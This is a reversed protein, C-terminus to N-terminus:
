GCDKEIRSIKKIYSKLETNDFLVIKDFNDKINNLKKLNINAVRLIARKIVKIKKKKSTSSDLYNFYSSYINYLSLLYIFPIFIITLIVPLIFSILTTTNAISNFNTFTKYISYSLIALGFLSLISSFVKTAQSYKEVAEAHKIKDLFPFNKLEYQVRQKVANQFRYHSM